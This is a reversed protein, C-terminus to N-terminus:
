MISCWEPDGNRFGVPQPPPQPFYQAPPEYYPYTQHHHHSNPPYNEYIPHWNRQQPPHYGYYYQDPRGYPTYGYGGHYPYHYGQRSPVNMEGYGPDAPSLDAHLGVEALTKMLQRPNIRGRIEVSGKEEDIKYTIGDISELVRVLMVRWGLFRIDVRLICSMYEAPYDM